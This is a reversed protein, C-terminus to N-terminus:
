KIKRKAKDHNVVKMRFCSIKKFKEKAKQTCGNSEMRYFKLSEGTLGRVQFNSIFIERFQVIETEFRDVIDIKINM